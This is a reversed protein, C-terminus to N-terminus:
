CKFASNYYLEVVSMMVVSLMVVSLMVASLMVVNLMIVSLMVTFLVRSDANSCEACPLDNNHETDRISLTM